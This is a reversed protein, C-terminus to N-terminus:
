PKGEGNGKLAAIEALYGFFEEQNILCMDAWPSTRDDKECLDQWLEACKARMAEAPDPAPSGYLKRYLDDREARLAAIVARGNDLMDNAYDRASIALRNECQLAAIERAQAAVLAGVREHDELTMSM